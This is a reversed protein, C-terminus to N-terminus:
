VASGIFLCRWVSAKTIEVVEFVPRMKHKNTQQVGQSQATPDAGRSLLARCAHGYSNSSILFAMHPLTLQQQSPENLFDNSENNVLHQVMRDIEEPCAFRSVLHSLTFGTTEDRCHVSAGRALLIRAISFQGTAFALWLPTWGATNGHNEVDASYDHVLFRVM